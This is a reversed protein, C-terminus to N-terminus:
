LLPRTPARPTNSAAFQADHARPRVDAAPALWRLLLVAAAAAACQALVFAPVDGLRIGCASDTFARALAVAPNGFGSATAWFGSGVYCAVVAAVSGPRSRSCVWVAGVLGLTFVFESLWPGPGARAIRSLAFLPADFMAAALGVGLLAGGTQAGAYAAAAGASIAGRWAMALSILPNLHAGSLPALCEILMFLTAATTIAGALLAIAGNGAALREGLISSGVIAALLLATGLAEAVLRRPLSVARM